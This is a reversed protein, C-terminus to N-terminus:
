HTVGTVIQTQLSLRSCNTFVISQLDAKEYKADLIHVVWPTAQQMSQLKNLMSNNVAWARDMNSTTLSNIDRM